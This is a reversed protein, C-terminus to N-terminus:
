KYYLAGVPCIEVCEGCETCSSEALSLEQFTSIHRDIGRGTFGIAGVQSVERDAWICKGCLVCRSNDKVFTQPSDDFEHERELYPYAKHNLKLKREKAIRQLACNRNQPCDKCQLRHDSLLLEFATKVLRDVRPSRTHVVMGDEVEQTCATVPENKGEIEVFCLRCSAPPHDIEEIACLNPIFIDNALAVWLVKEGPAASIEKGDITLIVQDKM